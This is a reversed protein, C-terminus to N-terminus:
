ELAYVFTTAQYCGDFGNMNRGTHSQAWDVYEQDEPLVWGFHYPPAQAVLGFVEVPVGSPANVTQEHYGNVIVRSLQGGEALDVTWDVPEYSSLVLVNDGPLGFTVFAEGPPHNGASHNGHTEYVGAVWLQPGDVLGNRVLNAEYGGGGSGCDVIAAPVSGEIGPPEPAPGGSTGEPDGGAGGDSGGEPDDPGDPEDGDEPEDDVPGGPGDAAPPPVDGDDGPADATAQDEGSELDGLVRGPGCAISTASLAAAVAIVTTMKM